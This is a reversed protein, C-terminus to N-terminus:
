SSDEKKRMSAVEARDIRVEDEFDRFPPTLDSVPM